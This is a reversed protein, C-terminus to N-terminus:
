EDIWTYALSVAQSTWAGGGTMAFGKVKKNVSTGQSRYCLFAYPCDDMIIDVVQEYIEQRKEPDTEAAGQAMLADYEDSQYAAMNYGGGAAYMTNLWDPDAVDGLFAQTALECEGANSRQNFTSWEVSEIEADIGIEKLSAQVAVATQEMFSYTSSTLITIKFGDEYGAEKLLEKAKEIDQAYCNAAEETYGVSTEMLPSGNLPTGKGSFAANLVDQKNIAYAIAQRVKKDALYENKTNMILYSAPGPQEYVELNADANIADFQAQPTYEIIDASGTKLANVRATEDPFFVFEVGDLYPQEEIYYDENAELTISVGSDWSVFKFPGAGMPDQSIDGNHEETWSKSVILLEKTALYNVFAQFPAKLTVQCTKEDTAEISDINNKLLSCYYAGSGEEMIREFSFKVDEATVPDGNQFKVDKLKFTYIKGDESVDYSDCIANIVNGDDDFKFLGEYIAYAVNKSAYGAGIMPDLTYPETSLGFKVVGGEKIESSASSSSEKEAEKGCGALNGVVLVTALLMSAIKTFLSKRKM